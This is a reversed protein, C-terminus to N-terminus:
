PTRGTFTPMIQHQLTNKCSQQTRLTLAGELCEQYELSPAFFFAQGALIIAFLGCSFTALPAGLKLIGSGPTQFAKRSTLIGIVLGAIALPLGVLRWPLTALSALFTASMIAVCAWVWRFLPRVPDDHAYHQKTAM